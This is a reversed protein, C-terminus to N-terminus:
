KSITAKLEVTIRRDSAPDAAQSVVLPRGPELLVSIQEMLSSESVAQGEPLRPSYELSLMVRVLSANLVVPSADVNLVTRGQTRLLGTSRISGRQRDAVILSVTKRQPEGTGSQDAISLDLRVNVAQAAETRSPGEPKAQPAPAPAQAQGAYGPSAITLLAVATIALSNLM